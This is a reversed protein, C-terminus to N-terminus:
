LWLLWQSKTSIAGCSLHPLPRPPIPHTFVMLSVFLCVFGWMRLNMQRKSLLMLRQLSAMGLALLFSSPMVKQARGPSTEAPSVVAPPTPCVRKTHDWSEGRSYWLSFSCCAWSTHALDVRDRAQLCNLKM